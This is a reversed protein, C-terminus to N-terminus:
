SFELFIPATHKSNQFHKLTSQHVARAKRQLDCFGLHYYGAARCCDSMKGARPPVFFPSVMCHWWFSFIRDKLFNNPVMNIGSDNKKTQLL